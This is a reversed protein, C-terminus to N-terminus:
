RSTKPASLLNKIVWVEEQPEKSNIFAIRRGDPHVAM